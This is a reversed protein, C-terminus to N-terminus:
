ESKLVKGVTVKNRKEHLIGSETHKNTGKKREGRKMQKTNEKLLDLLDYYVFYINFKKSSFQYFNFL